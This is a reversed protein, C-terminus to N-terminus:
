GDLLVDSHPSPIGPASRPRVAYRVEPYARAFLVWVAALLPFMLYSGEPGVSGGTLWAPGHLTSNLLHGPALNGSDPVSYLFSEGWDWAVHFGVAWWLAGTRRLTLCFFFGILVVAALGPKAEGPNALHMLGFLVSLLAAAPWFHMSQALVWLSYGRTVFEEFFSAILFFLAYYVAFKFIRAGHLSLSGFSFAGAAALVLLLATLAAIGWLAGVWFDRAFARKLPLGFDGFPKGELRAMVLGPLVAALLMRAEAVMTWWLSLRAPHLAALLSNLLGVVLFGMVLYILWRAAPYLGEPGVFIQVLPSFASERFSRSLASAASEPQSEDPQSQDPLHPNSDMRTGSM